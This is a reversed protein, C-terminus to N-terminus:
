LFFHSLAGFFVTGVILSLVFGITASVTHRVILFAYIMASVYVMAAMVGLATLFGVLFPGLYSATM